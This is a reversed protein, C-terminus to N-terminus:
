VLLSFDARYLAGQADRGSPDIRLDFHGTKAHQMRYLGAEIAGDARGRLVISFQEITQGCSRDRVSLLRVAARQGGGVDIQFDEGQLAAFVSQAPSGGLRREGTMAATSVASLGALTVGAAAAVFERRNSM